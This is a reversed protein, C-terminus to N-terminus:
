SEQHVQIRWAYEDRQKELANVVFSNQPPDFVLRVTIAVFTAFHDGEIGFDSWEQEPGKIAPMTTGGGLQHLEMLAGNIYPILEKDFADYDPELGLLEKIDNLISSM